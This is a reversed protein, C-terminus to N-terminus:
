LLIKDRINRFIGNVGEFDGQLFPFQSTNNYISIHYPEVNYSIDPPYIDPIHSLNGSSQKNDQRTILVFPVVQTFNVPFWRKSSLFLYPTIKENEFILPRVVVKEGSLYTVIEADWYDAYALNLNKQSLFLTLNKEETNPTPLSNTAQNISILSIVMIIIILGLIPLKWDKKMKIFIIAFSGYLLLPLISLYRLATEHAFLSVAIFCFVMCFFSYWLFNSSPDSNSLILPTEMTRKRHSYILCIVFSITIIFLIAIGIGLLSPINPFLLILFLHGIGDIHSVWGNVLGAPRRLFVFWTPIFYKLVFSASSVFLISLAFHKTGYQYIKPVFFFMLILPVTVWIVVISDSIVLLALVFLSIYLKKGFYWEKIFILYLFLAIGLITVIHSKPIISDLSSTPTGVAALAAFIFTSLYDRTICYIILSFSVVIAVFIFFSTIRLIEPSYNTIIQPLLHIPFGTFIDPDASFFFYDKFLFDHYQWFERSIIGHFVDDSNLSRQMALRFKFFFGIIILIFLGFISINEWRFVRFYGVNMTEVKVDKLQKGIM